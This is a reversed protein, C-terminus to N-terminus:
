GLVILKKYMYENCVYNVALRGKNPADGFGPTREMIGFIGSIETPLQISLDKKPENKGCSHEPDDRDTAWKERDSYKSRFEGNWKQCFPENSSSNPGNQDSFTKGNEHIGCTNTSGSLLGATRTGAKSPVYHRTRPFSVKSEWHRGGGPLISWPIPVSSSKAPPLGAVSQGRM